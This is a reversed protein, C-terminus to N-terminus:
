MKRAEPRRKSRKWCFFFVGIVAGSMDILIDFFDDWGAPGQGTLLQMVEQAVALSLFALIFIFWPLPSKRDSFVSLVLWALVGYLIFRMIIHSIDTRFLRDFVMKYAPVMQYILYFPCLMGIGLLVILIIRIRREM